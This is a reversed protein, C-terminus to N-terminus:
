AVRVAAANKVQVIEAMIAVAIEAPTKGGLALGVPGHLRDLEETTL